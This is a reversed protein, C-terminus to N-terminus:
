GNGKLVKVTELERKLIAKPKNIIDNRLTLKHVVFIGVLEWGNAGLSNLRNENESFDYEDLFIELYEFQKM